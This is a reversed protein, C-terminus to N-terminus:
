VDIAGLYTPSRPLAAILFAESQSHSRAGLFRNLQPTFAKMFGICYGAPNYMYGANMITAADSSSAFSSPRCDCSPELKHALGVM